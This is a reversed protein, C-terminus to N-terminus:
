IYKAHIGPMGECREPKPEVDMAEYLSKAANGTLYIRMHTNRTEEPLVDVLTKGGLTFKGTLAEMSKYKDSMAIIPFSLFILFYVWLKNKM